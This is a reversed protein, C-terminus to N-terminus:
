LEFGNPDFLADYAEREQAEREYERAQVLTAHKCHGNYKWGLCPEGDKQSCATVQHKLNVTVQYLKEGSQVGYLVYGSKKFEARALIHLDVTQFTPKSTITSKM